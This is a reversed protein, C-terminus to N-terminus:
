FRHRQVDFLRLKGMEDSPVDQFDDGVENQISFIASEQIDNAWDVGSFCKFDWIFNSYTDGRGPFTFKTWAEIEFADSTFKTRDNENVRKVFFRELEDGGAKHNFVADALVGISQEHLKTIANLFEDKSGYKTSTSVRKSLSAWILYTTHMMALLIGGSHGKYAPPLWVMTVGM